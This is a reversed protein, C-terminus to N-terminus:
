VGVDYVMGVFAAAAGALMAFWCRYKHSVANQDVSWFTGIAGAVVAAIGVPNLFSVAAVFILSAGLGRNGAGSGAAVGSILAAVLGVICAAGLMVAFWGIVNKFNM